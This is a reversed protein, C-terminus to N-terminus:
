EIHCLYWKYIKVFWHIAYYVCYIVDHKQALFTFRWILITVRRHLSFNWFSLYIAFWYCSFIVFWCCYFFAFVYYDVLILINFCFINYTHLFISYYLYYIMSMYMIHTAMLVSVICVNIDYGTTICKTPTNSNRFSM